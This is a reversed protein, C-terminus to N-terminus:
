VCWWFTRVQAQVCVCVCAHVCVSVCVCVCLNGLCACAIKMELRLLGMVCFVAHGKFGDWGRSCSFRSVDQTASFHTQLSASDLILAWSLDCWSHAADKHLNWPPPGTAVTSRNPTTMSTNNPRYARNSPLDKIAFFVEFINYQKQKRDRGHM